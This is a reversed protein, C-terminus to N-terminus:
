SQVLRLAARVIALTSPMICNELDPSSPVPAAHAGLRTAPARLSLHIDPLLDAIVRDCVGGTANAEQVFLLRGTKTISRICLQRDYPALSRLDVVEATVGRGELFEAAELCLSVAHGYTLLTCDRGERAVRGVGIPITVDDSPVPGEAPYLLKHEFFLVPSSGRIASRLLGAADAPNSPFLVQLGPIHLFLSELSQSHTAGYGNRRGAPIRVVLPVRVQGAYMYRIKAAHNVLADMCCTVFDGFMIEVVPRLGGMAAGVAAGVITNESIPTERVREPGFQQLLGRTVGFAGGYAGIDEGLLIVTPDRQMESTLVGRLAETFSVNRCEAAPARMDPPADAADLDSLALDPGGAPSQIAFEAAREIEAAAKQQWAALQADTFHARRALLRLPDRRKWAEEEDRSRYVRPDSKSHGCQRYTICELFGPGDGARARELLPQVRAVVDLVDNGDAPSAVMSRYRTAWDVFRECAAFRSVPTSMAYGNNEMVFVVPLKWLAALNLSEHFNGTAAAGDGLYCIVCHGPKARAGAHVAVPLAGFQQIALALGAAVPLGGGTIGNSGM